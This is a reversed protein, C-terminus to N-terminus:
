IDQNNQLKLAGLDVDVPLEQCKLDLIKFM